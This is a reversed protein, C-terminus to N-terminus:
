MLIDFQIFLNGATVMRPRMIIIHIPRTTITESIGRRCIPHVSLVVCATYDKCHVCRPSRIIPQFYVNSIWNHIAKVHASRRAELCVFICVWCLSTHCNPSMLTIPLALMKSGHPQREWRFKPWTLIEDISCWVCSDPNAVCLSLSFSFVVFITM